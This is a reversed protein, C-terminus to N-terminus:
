PAEPGSYLVTVSRASLLGEPRRQAMMRVTRGPWLMTAAPLRMASVDVTVERGAAVTLTVLAADVDRM